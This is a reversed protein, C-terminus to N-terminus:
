RSSRMIKVFWADQMIKNPKIKYFGKIGQKCKYSRTPNKHSNKCPNNYLLLNGRSRWPLMHQYIVIEGDETEHESEDTMFTYDISKWLSEEKSNLLVKRRDNYM